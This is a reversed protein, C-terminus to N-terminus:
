TKTLKMMEDPSIKNCEFINNHVEALNIPISLKKVFLFSLSTVPAYTLLTLTLRHAFSHKDGRKKIFRDDTV